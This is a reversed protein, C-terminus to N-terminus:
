ARDKLSTSANLIGLRFDLLYTTHRLRWITSSYLIFSRISKNTTMNCFYKRCLLYLFEKKVLLNHAINKRFRRYGTSPYFSRLTKEPFFNNYMLLQLMITWDNDRNIDM